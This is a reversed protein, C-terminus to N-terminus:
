KAIVKLYLILFLVIPALILLKVFSSKRPRYNIIKRFRFESPM